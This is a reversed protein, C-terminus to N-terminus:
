AADQADEYSLGKKMLFSVVKKYCAYMDQLILERNMM